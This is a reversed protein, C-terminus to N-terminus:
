NSLIRAALQARLTKYGYLVDIRCPLNDNNIDYARVIRMSIGDYVERASFDVGKPMILDATAFAFADKHFVLSPKYVASAGGVKTVTAGNPIGTALVNQLGTSTYVAPSISINGAGGAYDATVVFQQLAGTDAKTEPHVRNCGSFTIIDGKEFTTAGTAVTVTSSGNTTVAGNVTYTTASLATGTTQTPILTNEYFDFGGTRGMMGEKYQKAIASSDQFLGKLADILDVQDTTNLICTRNNDIPALNDNLLKRGTMVNKFTIASGINNIANYVDLAMSFADAELNAALVAMAPELIRTSFDDLSLTLEASSFNVDVGKQNSVALSVSQETTDQTSLTKGTRVTYQNPLRIKLTDGIKAGSNAFSDDYQRNINGIFNLKQHLIRLAERTIMQPTLITNVM